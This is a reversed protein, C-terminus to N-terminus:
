LDFSVHPRNGRHYFLRGLILDLFISKPFIGHLKHIVSALYTPVKGIRWESGWNNLFHCPELPCSNPAFSSGGFLRGEDLGNPVLCHCDINPPGLDQSVNGSLTGVAKREGFLGEFMSKPIADLSLPIPLPNVFGRQALHPGQICTRPIWSVFHCKPARYRFFLICFKTQFNADEWLM